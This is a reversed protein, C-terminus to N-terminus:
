AIIVYLYRCDSDAATTMIDIGPRRPGSSGWFLHGSVRFPGHNGQFLTIVRFTSASSDTADDQQEASRRHKRSKEWIGDLEERDLQEPDTMLSCRSNGSRDDAMHLGDATVPGM